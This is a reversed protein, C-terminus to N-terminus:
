ASACISAYYAYALAEMEGFTVIGVQKGNIRIILYPEISGTLIRPVLYTFVRGRITLSITTNIAPIISAQQAHHYQDILQALVPITARNHWMDVLNKLSVQSMTLLHIGNYEISTPNARDDIYDSTLTTARNALGKEVHVVM